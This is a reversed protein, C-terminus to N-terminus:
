HPRGFCCNFPNPLFGFSTVPIGLGAVAQWHWPYNSNLRPASNNITLAHNVLVWGHKERDEVDVAEIRVNHYV